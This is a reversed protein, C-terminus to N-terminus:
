HWPDGDLIEEAQEQIAVPAVAVDTRVDVEEGTLVDAPTLEAIDPKTEEDVALPESPKDERARLLLLV